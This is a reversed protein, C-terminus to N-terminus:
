RPTLTWGKMATPRKWANLIIQYPKGKITKMLAKVNDSDVEGCEYCLLGGKDLMARTLGPEFMKQQGKSLSEYELFGDPLHWGISVSGDEIKVVANGDPLMETIKEELQIITFKLSDSKKSKFKELDSKETKLSAKGENMEKQSKAIQEDISKAALFKAQESRLNRLKQNLGEMHAKTDTIDM